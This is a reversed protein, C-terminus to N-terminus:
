PKNSKKPNKLSRLLVERAWDSLQKGSRTAAAELKLKDDVRMRVRVTAELREAPDKLPRGRRPLEAM